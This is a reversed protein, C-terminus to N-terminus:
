PRAQGRNPGGQSEQPRNKLNIKAYLAHNLTFHLDNKNNLWATVLYKEKSIIFVIDKANFPLRFGMKIIQDNEIQLEFVDDWKLKYDKLAQGIKEAESEKLLEFLCHRSFTFARNKLAEILAQAKLIDSENFGFEKHYKIIMKNIGKTFLKEKVYDAFHNKVNGIKKYVGVIILM